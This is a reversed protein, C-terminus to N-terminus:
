YMMDNMPQPDLLYAAAIHGVWGSVFALSQCTLKINLAVLAWYEDRRKLDEQVANM